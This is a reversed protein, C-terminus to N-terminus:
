VGSGLVDKTTPLRRIIAAFAAAFAPDQGREKVTKQLVKHEHKTVFGCRWRQAFSHVWSRLPGSLADAPAQRLVQAALACVGQRDTTLRYGNAPSQRLLFLGLGECIPQLREYHANPALPYRLFAVKILYSASTRGTSARM